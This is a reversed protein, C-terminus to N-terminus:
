KIVVFKGRKKEGTDTDIVVFLYLGRAIIQTDASLLDWAHEGGSFVTTSPDSYTNFWRTDSGDYQEDHAIVDVLDGALTYVRIECRAPLNAFYLKRDEELTSAGEWDARGYYPNPYVFPDGSEFNTNAPKGAFVRRLNALPASELPQLNNVEDGRDFATLAVVHQWGNAINDFTYRYRYTVTDGPFTIPEDLLISEFGQDFSLENGPIDWQGVPKLAQIITQTNQVDFGVATKYLTYGEFDQEKSIPDVSAEANDAWYVDIKHDSPIVKFNPRDPPTPLIFRTILGDGNLDEGPDLRGNRNNDEGDYARQAWGANQLLNAKQEDTNAAAPQGDFVRRACIIAFAVDITEGPALRTFPGASILNSRNNPTSIQGLITPFDALHNLGSSMKGYKQLDNTPFFYRPDLSNRFQWTNFHVKFNPSTSAQGNKEAGLFKCAVYSDTYGIDGTADFEYGMNLTDVFGNGGKNFFATGGPPTINVNRIVGDMWFGLFVSDIARDTVNTIKFNYILFFNAFAYNWNYSEFEVVVGLPTLHDNIPISSTGTNIAIATDSFTSVYDQHSVARPDFFPSDFLSSQERLPTKSTFEFGAKGTAYGSADDVAGTSVAVQGNVLGGIWLGGDFIHEIGSNAPYECSPFGQVNFSGSFSNGLIGLNSVTAAINGASTVKEDYVDIGQALLTGTPLILLSLLAIVKM